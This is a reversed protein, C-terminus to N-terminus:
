EQAGRDPVSIVFVAGARRPAALVAAVDAEGTEASTAETRPLATHTLAADPERLQISGGHKGILEAAIALGLGTGGPRAGGQFAKFMNQRAKPPVGPGNDSISIVTTRKRREASVTIEGDNAGLQELADVANRAINNLVRYLHERDADVSVAEDVEVRWGVNPRPLQLGDAVEQVLPALPFVDRRPEAEEARGFKLTDNCFNIARDLSAVLKPAFRQVNPDPVAGLRDSLVQASALMNRLDHNIKSVALGLQALRNKQNLAQALQTQMEALEVEATGLEDRRGSPQIIRSRDEPENGFRVMNRSLAMIPNVLVRSLAFYVLTATILSIIVSLILINLAYTLMAGRLATEDLVVEVFDSPPDATDTQGYARIMRGAPAIFTFLADRILGARHLLFELTSRGSQMRLDFSADVVIPQDAPLIMRRIDGEKVAIAQVQATKLLERRLSQPVEGDKAAKAALSALRAATLRDGLWNVRFNAISPLFILIEALMVFALTLLLLKAQLGVPWVKYRGVAARAGSATAAGVRKLHQAAVAARQRVSGADAPTAGTDSNAQSDEADKLTM